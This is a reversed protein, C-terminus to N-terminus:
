FLVFYLFIKNIKKKKGRTQYLNAQIKKRKQEKNSSKPSPSAKPIKPYFALKLSKAKTDSFFTPFFCVIFNKLWM